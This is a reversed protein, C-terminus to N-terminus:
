FVNTISAVKFSFLTSGVPHRVKSRRLQLNSSGIGFRQHTRILPQQPSRSIVHTALHPAPYLSTYPTANFIAARRLSDKARVFKYGRVSHCTPGSTGSTGPPNELTSARQRLVLIRPVRARSTVRYLCQLKEWQIGTLM